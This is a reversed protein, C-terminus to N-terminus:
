YYNSQIIRYKIYNFVTPHYYLSSNVINHNKKSNIEEICNIEKILKVLNLAINNMGRWSISTYTDGKKPKLKAQFIIDGTDVGADVWFITYGINEYDNNLIAWFSSHVGRYKQTIGPHGGIIRGDVLDRVKKGVWYQTHIIILDPKLDKIWKINDPSSYNSETYLIKGDWKTITKEIENKDFISDHLIKDKKSNLLKYVIREFVQLLVKLVGQKKIASKLFKTNIGHNKQNSIVAGVVNIGGNILTVLTNKNATSDGILVVIKIKSM